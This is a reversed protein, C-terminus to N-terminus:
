VIGVWSLANGEKGGERSPLRPRERRPLLWWDQRLKDGHLTPGAHLIGTRPRRSVLAPASGPDRGGAHIGVAITRSITSSGSALLFRLPKCDSILLSTSSVRDPEAAKIDVNKM